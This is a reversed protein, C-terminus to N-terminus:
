RVWEHYLRDDDSKQNRETGGQETHAQHEFAIRHDSSYDPGYGQVFIQGESELVRQPNKAVTITKPEQRRQKKDLLNLGDLETSKETTQNDQLALYIHTKLRNSKEVGDHFLRRYLKQIPNPTAVIDVPEDIPAIEDQQVEFTPIYDNPNLTEAVDGDTAM